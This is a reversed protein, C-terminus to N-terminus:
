SICTRERIHSHNSPHILFQVFNVVVPISSCPHVDWEKWARTEWSTGTANGFHTPLCRPRCCMPFHIDGRSHTGKNGMHGGDMEAAQETKRRLDNQHTRLGCSRQQQQQRQGRQEM